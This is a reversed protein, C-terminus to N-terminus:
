EHRLAEIPDMHAARIAPYIGALIGVIVSIAFSVLIPWLELRPELKQVIEPLSAMAEPFFYVMAKRAGSIAPKCSLGVLIGLCGGVGTLVIAESLFQQIIDIRRAGLARRVGIERTRETVSALMINMIGIGGVILSIGAILVLLINFMVQFMKAQRLLEKPVVVAVDNLDKHDKDLLANVIDATQDVQEISDVTITIQNLEVVEGENSGTRSTLTMDGIRARFTDIPIYVDKNYEQSSLSGGIAATPDRSKTIGIVLYFDLGIQISQGLPNELPFLAKATEAALVCFNQPVPEGDPDQVFRGSDIELRNLDQYEKTCGVLRGEITHSGNRFEKTTERIRAIQKIDSGLNAVIRRYDSRLLGYSLFFTRNRGQSSQQPPKVSRVIVNTAGLDKIQQQAQYSVGQGLAVLWIVATIGILIGLVALISRLKHLLLSYFGLRLTAFFKTFM